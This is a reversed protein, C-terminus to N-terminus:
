AFDLDWPGDVAVKRVRGFGRITVDGRFRGFMWDGENGGSELLNWSMEAGWKGARGDM